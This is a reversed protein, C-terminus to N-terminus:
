MYIPKELEAKLDEDNEEGQMETEGEDETSADAAVEPQPRPCRACCRPPTRLISSEETVAQCSYYRHM